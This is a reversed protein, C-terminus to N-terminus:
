KWIVEDGFSLVAEDFVLCGLVGRKRIRRGRVALVLGASVVPRADLVESGVLVVFGVWGFGFWWL